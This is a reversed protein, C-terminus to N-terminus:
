EICEGARLMSFDGMSDILCQCFLPRDFERVVGLLELAPKFGIKVGGVVANGNVKAVHGFSAFHRFAQVLRLFHFGNPLEGAPHRM